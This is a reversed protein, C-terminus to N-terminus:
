NVDAIYDDGIRVYDIDEVVIPEDFRHRGSSGVISDPHYGSERADMYADMAMIVTGDKMVLEV